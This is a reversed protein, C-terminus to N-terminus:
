TGHLCFTSYAISPNVTQRGAGDVASSLYRAPSPTNELSVLQLIVGAFRKILAKLLRPAAM